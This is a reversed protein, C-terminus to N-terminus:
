QRTFVVRKREAPESSTLELSSNSKSAIVWSRSILKFPSSTGLNITLLTPDGSVGYYSVGGWVWTGATSKDAAVATLSGDPSFTFIYSALQSTKDETVETFSSVKWSASTIIAPVTNANAAPTESTKSCSHAAVVLMLFM